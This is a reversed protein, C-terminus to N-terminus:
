ARKKRSVISLGMVSVIGLMSLLASDDKEGTYPLTEVAGLNVPTKATPKAPTEPTEPTVPVPTHTVVTNSKVVEGNIINSGTNEVDGAAIRKFDLIAQVQLKSDDKISKLFDSNLSIKYINGDYSEKAYKILDAGSKIVTGDELTIDKVLVLHSGLYKDHAEDLDDEFAYQGKGDNFAAAIVEAGTLTYHGNEGVQLTGDNIDEGEDNTVGKVVKLENYIYTINTNGEVVEGDENGETLDTVIIFTRGDETKIITPKHDTTDYKTGTSSTPTDVENPILENGETDKHDVTVTGFVENYTFVVDQTGIVVTGKNNDTVGVFTYTKGDQVIKNDHKSVDYNEGTPQENIKTEKPILVKGDETVHVTTVSGVTEYKYNNVEVTPNTIVGTAKVDSNFAWWQNADNTAGFTLRVENGSLKIVGAGYYETSSGNHDWQDSIANNNTDSYIESGHQDVSSGTIKVFEGNVNSVYEHYVSSANPDTGHEIGKANDSANLSSASILASGTSFDVQTGDEYFYKATFDIATKGGLLNSGFKITTTPDKFLYATVLGDKDSALVPTYTYVVSSIKKGDFVSNTLNDYKITTTEGLKMLVKYSEGEKAGENITASLVPASLYKSVDKYYNANLYFINGVKDTSNTVAPDLNAYQGSITATANPESKFVLDQAVVQSVYGDKSTNAKATAVQAEHTAQAEKLAATEAALKNAAQQQLATEEQTTSATGLDIPTKNEKVAVGAQTASSVADQQATDTVTTVNGTTSTEITPAVTAVPATAVPATAEAAFVDNGGVALLTGAFAVTAVAGKAWKAKRISGKAQTESSKNFIFKKNM